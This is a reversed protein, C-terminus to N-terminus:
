ETDALKAEIEQKIRDVSWRGDVKIGISEAKAKAEDMEEDESIVAAAELDGAMLIVEGTKILRNVYKAGIHNIDFYKEEQPKILGVLPDKTRQTTPIIINCAAINRITIRTKM